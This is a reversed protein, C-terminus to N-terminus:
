FRRSLTPPPTPFPGLDPQLPLPAHRVGQTCENAEGCIVKLLRTFAADKVAVDKSTWNSMIFTESKPFNTKIAHQNAVMRLIDAAGTGCGVGPPTPFDLQITLSTYYRM